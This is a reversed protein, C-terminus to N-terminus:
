PYYVNGPMRKSNITSFKDLYMFFRLNSGNFYSAGSHIINDAFFVTEGMKLIIIIPIDLLGKDTGYIVLRSDNQLCLIMSWSGSKDPFDTHPAQLNCGQLSYLFAGASCSLGSFFKLKLLNELGEILSIDVVLLEKYLRLKDNCLNSDLNENIIPLYGSKDRAMSLLKTTPYLISTVFFGQIVAAEVM